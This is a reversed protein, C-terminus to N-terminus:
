GTLGQQPDLFKNEDAEGRGGSGASAPIPCVTRGVEYKRRKQFTQKPRLTLFAGQHNGLLSIPDGISSNWRSVFQCWNWTSSSERVRRCAVRVVLLSSNVLFALVSWSCCYCIFYDRMPWYGSQSLVICLNLPLAVAMGTVAYWAVQKILVLRLTVGVTEHKRFAKTM